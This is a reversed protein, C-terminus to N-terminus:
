FAGVAPEGHIVHFKNSKGAPISGTVLTLCSSSVLSIEDYGDFSKTLIQKM